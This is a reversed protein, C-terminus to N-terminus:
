WGSDLACSRAEVALPLGLLRHTHEVSVCVLGDARTAVLRAGSLVQGVHRHADAEPAGRALLRAATTAAEHARAQATAATLGGLCLALVVLLAPVAAVLEASVAGREGAARGSPQSM